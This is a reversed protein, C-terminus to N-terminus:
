EAAPVVHPHIRAEIFQDAATSATIAWGVAYGSTVPVARGEDDATIPQGIAVAAGALVDATGICLVDVRDGEASEFPQICVGIPKDASTAQKATHPASGLAVLAGEFMDSAADHTIIQVPHSM